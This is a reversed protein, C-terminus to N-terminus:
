EHSVDKILTDSLFASYSVALSEATPDHGFSRDNADNSNDFIKSDVETITLLWNKDASESDREEKIGSSQLFPMSSISHEGDQIMEVVQQQDLQQKLQLKQLELQNQLQQQQQKQQQM